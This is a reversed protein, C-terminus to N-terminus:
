GFLVSSSNHLAIHAQLPGACGMASRDRIEPSVFEARGEEVFATVAAMEDHANIPPHGKTSRRSCVVPVCKSFSRLHEWSGGPLLGRAVVEAEFQHQFAARKRESLLFHGVPDIGRATLATSMAATTARSLALLTEYEDRVDWRQRAKALNKRATRLHSKSLGDADIDKGPTLRTLEEFPVAGPVDRTLPLAEKMLNRFFSPQETANPDTLSTEFVAMPHVRPEDGLAGGIGADLAGTLEDEADGDPPAGPFVVAVDVDSDPRAEGRAQSGYLLVMVPAVPLDLRALADCVSRAVGAVPTSLRNLTHPLPQM